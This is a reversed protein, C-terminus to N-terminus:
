TQDFSKADLGLALAIIRAVREGNRVDDGFILPVFQITFLEIDELASEEKKGSISLKDQDKALASKEEFTIGNRTSDFGSKDVEPDLD